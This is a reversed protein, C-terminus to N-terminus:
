RFRRSHDQTDDSVQRSSSLKQGKLNTTFTGVNNRQGVQGDTMMDQFGFTRYASLLREGRQTPQLHRDLPMDFGTSVRSNGSSQGLRLNGPSDFTHKMYRRYSDQNGNEFADLLDRSMLNRKAVFGEAESMNGFKTKGELNRVPGGYGFEKTEERLIERGLGRMRGVAAAQEAIGGFRTRLDGGQATRQGDLFHLTSRNLAHQGTGSAIIHDISTPGPNKKNFVDNEQVTLGRGMQQAARVYVDRNPNYQTFRDTVKKTGYHGHLENREQTGFGLGPGYKVQHDLKGGTKTGTDYVFPSSGPGASSGTMKMPKLGSQPQSSLGSDDRKRKKPNSM